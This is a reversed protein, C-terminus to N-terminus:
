VFAFYQNRLCPNRPRANFCAALCIIEFRFSLSLPEVFTSATESKGVIVVYYGNQALEVAKQQVKKVDLCTLDVPEFGAQKIKESMSKQVSGAAEYNFKESHIRTFEPPRKRHRLPNRKHQNSRAKNEENFFEAFTDELNFKYSNDNRKVVFIGDRDSATVVFRDDNNLLYLFHARQEFLSIKSIDFEVTNGIKDFTYSKEQAKASFVLLFLAIILLAKKM